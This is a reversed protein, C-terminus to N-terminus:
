IGNTQKIRGDNLHDMVKWLEREALALCDAKLVDEGMDYHEALAAYMGDSIVDSFHKAFKLKLYPVQFRKKDSIENNDSLGGLESIAENLMRNVATAYVLIQVDADEDFPLM